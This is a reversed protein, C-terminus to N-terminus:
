KGAWGTNGTGTQKVYLSTGSGGDIRLYISGIPATVVGQPTGSGSKSLCGTIYRTECEQQSGTDSPFRGNRVRLNGSSTFLYSQKWESFSSDSIWSNSSPASTSKIIYATSTDKVGSVRDFKCDSVACGGTSGSPIEFYSSTASNMYGTCKSLLWSGYFWTANSQIDCNKLTASFYPNGLAFLIRGAPIFRREVLSYRLTSDAPANVADAMRCFTQLPSDELYNDVKDRLRYKRSWVRAPMEAGSFFAISKTLDNSASSHITSSQM